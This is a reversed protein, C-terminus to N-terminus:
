DPTWSTNSDSYYTFGQGDGGVSGGYPSHYSWAGGGRQQQASAQLDAIPPGGELGVKGLADLGYRGPAVAGVLQQLFVREWLPLRRGAWPLDRTSRGWRPAGKWGGSGPSTTM